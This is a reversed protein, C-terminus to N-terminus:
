MLSMKVAKNEDIVQKKLNVLDFDLKSQVNKLSKLEGLILVKTQNMAGELLRSV